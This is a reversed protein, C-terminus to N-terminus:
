YAVIKEFCLDYLDITMDGGPAVELSVLMNITTPTANITGVANLRVKYSDRPFIPFPTGGSGSEATSKQLAAMLNSGNLLFTLDHRLLSGDNNNIVEATINNRVVDASALGAFFGSTSQLQFRVVTAGANGNQIRIRQVSRDEDVSGTVVVGTANTVISINYGTAVDGNITGTSPTKSGTNGTIVPMVYSATVRHFRRLATVARLVTKASEMGVMYAGISTRHIGDTSLVYDRIANGNNDAAIVSYTDNFLVNKYKEALRAYGANVLPIDARRPYAGSTVSTGINLPDITDLVVLPINQSMRLLNDMKKVIQAVTPASPDISPNLNNVGCHVWLIDINDTLANPMQGTIVSDITAGGVGRNNAIFYPVQFAIQTMAWAIHSQSTPGAITGGAGIGDGQAMLSDGVGTIALRSHIATKPVAQSGDANLNVAFTGDAAFLSKAVDVKMTTVLYTCAGSIAMIDVKALNPYPGLVQVNDAGRLRSNVTTTTFNTGTLGHIRANNKTSVILTSGAPITVQQSTGSTITAM